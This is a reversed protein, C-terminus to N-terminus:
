QRAARLGPKGAKGPDTWPHRLLQRRATQQAHGVQPQMQWQTVLIAGPQGRDALQNGALARLDLAHHFRDLAAKAIPRHQTHGDGVIRLLGQHQTEDMKAAGLDRLELGTRPHAREPLHAEAVVPRFHHMRAVPQQGRL